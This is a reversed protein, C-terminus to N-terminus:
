RSLRGLQAAYDLSSWEECELAVQYDMFAAASQSRPARAWRDYADQVAVSQERWDVYAEMVEDVIRKDITTTMAGDGTM